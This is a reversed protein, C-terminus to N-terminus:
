GNIKVEDEEGIIIEELDPARPLFEEAPFIRRYIQRGAEVAAEFDLEPLPGPARHVNRLRTGTEGSFPRM